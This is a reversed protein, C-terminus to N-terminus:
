LTQGASVSKNNFRHERLQDGRAKELPVRSQQPTKAAVDYDLWGRSTTSGPAENNGADQKSCGSRDAIPWLTQHAHKISDM